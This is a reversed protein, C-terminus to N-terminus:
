RMLGQTLCTLEYALRLIEDGDLGELEVVLDIAAAVECASNRACTFYKRRMALSHNPLGESLQLFASKSARRAQDRLEDDGIHALHVHKALAKAVLYAHTRQFNIRCDNM